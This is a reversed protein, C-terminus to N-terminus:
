EETRLASQILPEISYYTTWWSKARYQEFCTGPADGSNGDQTIVYDDGVATVVGHHQYPHNRYAIDGLDPSGTVSGRLKYLFGAGVEWNWSTLGARRLCWLAFAGCWHPPYPGRWNDPLVERWYREAQACGEESSAINAVRQRLEAANM